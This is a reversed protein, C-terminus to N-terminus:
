TSVLLTDASQRAPLRLFVYTTAKLVLTPTLQSLTCFLSPLVGEFAQFQADKGDAKLKEVFLRSAECDTVKDGTGHVVFLPLGKPWHKYDKSVLAEGQRALHNATDYRLFFAFRACASFCTRWM